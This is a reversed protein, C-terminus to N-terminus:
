DKCGSFLANVFSSTIFSNYSFGVLFAFVGEIASYIVIKLIIFLRTPMNSLQTAFIGLIRCVDTFNLNVAM